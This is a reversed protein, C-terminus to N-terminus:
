WLAMHDDSRVLTYIEGVDNKGLGSNSESKPQARSSKNPRAICKADKLTGEQISFFAEIDFTM